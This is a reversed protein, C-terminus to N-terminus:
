RKDTPGVECFDFPVVTEDLSVGAVYDESKYDDSAMDDGAPLTWQFGTFKITTEECSFNDEIMVISSSQKRTWLKILHRKM